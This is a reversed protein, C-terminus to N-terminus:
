AADYVLDVWPVDHCGNFGIYCYIFSSSMFHRRINMFQPEVLKSNEMTATLKLVCVKNKHVGDPPVRM